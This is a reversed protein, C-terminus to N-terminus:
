VYIGDLLTGKAAKRAKDMRGDLRALERELESIRETQQAALEPPLNKRRRKSGFVFRWLQNLAQLDLQDM